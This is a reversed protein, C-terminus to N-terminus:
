FVIAKNYLHCGLRITVSQNFFTKLKLFPLPM